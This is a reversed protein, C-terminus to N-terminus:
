EVTEFYGTMTAVYAELAEVSKGTGDQMYGDGSNRNTEGSVDLIGVSLRMAMYWEEPFIRMKAGDIDQITNWAQLTNEYIIGLGRQAEDLKEVGRILLEEVKGADYFIVFERSLGEVAIWDVGDIEVSSVDEFVFTDKTANDNSALKAYNKVIRPHALAIIGQGSYDNVERMDDTLNDVDNTALATTVTTRYFNRTGDDDPDTKTLFDSFDEGRACGFARSFAEAGSTSGGDDTPITATETSGTILAKLRSYPLYKKSYVNTVKKMKKLKRADIDVAGRRSALLTEADYNFAVVNYGVARNLEFNSKYEIFEPADSSVSGKLFFVNAVEVPLATGDVREVIQEMPELVANLANMTRQTDTSNGGEIVGLLEMANDDLDVNPINGISDTGKIITLGNAM